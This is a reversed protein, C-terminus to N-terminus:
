KALSLSLEEGSPAMTTAFIETSVGTTIVPPVVDFDINQAAISLMYTTRPLLGEITRTLTNSGSVLTGMVTNTGNEVHRLQYSTITVHRFICTVEDWTLTLSTPTSSSVAFNGPPRSPGILSCNLVHWLIYM